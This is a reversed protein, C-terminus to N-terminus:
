STCERIQRKRNFMFCGGFTYIKDQYVCSSHRCRGNIKELTTYPMNTWKAISTDMKLQAVENNCDYNLGGILYVRRNCFTLTSYERPAPNWSPPSLVTMEAYFSERKQMRQVYAQLGRALQETLKNRPIDDAPSAVFLNPGDEDSETEAEKRRTKPQARTKDLKRANLKAVAQTLKQTMDSDEYISRRNSDKLSTTGQKIMRPSGLAIKGM